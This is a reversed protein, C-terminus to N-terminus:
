RQENHELYNYVANHLDWYRIFWDSILGYHPLVHYDYENDDMMKLIYEKTIKDMVIIYFPTTTKTFDIGGTETCRVIIWEIGWVEDNGLESVEESM